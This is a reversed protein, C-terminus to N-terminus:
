VGQGCCEDFSPFLEAEGFGVIEIGLGLKTDACILDGVAIPLAAARRGAIDLWVLVTRVEGDLDRAVDLAHNEIAFPSHTDLDAVTARSRCVPRIAFHEHCCACILVGFIM